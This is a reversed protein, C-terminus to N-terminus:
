AGLAALKAQANAAQAQATEVAARAVKIQHERYAALLDASPEVGLSKANNMVREAEYTQGDRRLTAVARATKEALMALAQARAKEEDPFFWIERQGSYGNDVKIRWDLAKADHRVSAFLTLVRESYSFSRHANFAKSDMVTIVGEVETVYHTIRANLFDDVYRLAEHQQLRERVAHQDAMSQRRQRDLDAIEAKIAALKQQQAKIEADMKPQPPEQYVSHWIEVGDAYYSEPETVGDGDEILPQVIYGGGKATSVYLAMGGDISYVTDGAKPTYPM